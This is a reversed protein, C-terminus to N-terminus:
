FRRRVEETAAIRTELERRLNDSERRCEQRGYRMAELVQDKLESIQAGTKM